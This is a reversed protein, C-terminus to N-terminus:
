YNMYRYHISNNEPVQELGFQRAKDAIYYIRTRVEGNEGAYERTRINVGGEDVQNVDIDNGRRHSQHCSSDRGGNDGNDFMGGFKLSADNFSLRSGFKSRYFSDLLVLRSKMGPIVWRAEPNHACTGGFVFKFQGDESGEPMVALNSVKIDLTETAEKSKRELDTDTADRRAELTITENVGFEGAKYETFFIGTSNIEGEIVTKNTKPTDPDLIDKSSFPIYEGTGLENEDSFHEHGGTNPTITNTLKVIADPLSQRCQKDPGAVGVVQVYIETSEGDINYAKFEPQIAPENIWVNDIEPTFRSPSFDGEGIQEGNFLVRLRYKGETACPYRWWYKWGIIAKCDGTSWQFPCDGVQGEYTDSFETLLQNVPLGKENEIRLFQWTWVSGVPIEYEGKTNHYDSISVDVGIGDHIDRDFIGNQLSTSTYDPQVQFLNNFSTSLAFCVPTVLMLLTISIFKRKVVMCLSNCKTSKICSAFFITPHNDM